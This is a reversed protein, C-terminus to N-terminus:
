KNKSLYIYKAIKKEMKFTGELVERTNWYNPSRVEVSPPMPKIGPQPVHTVCVM